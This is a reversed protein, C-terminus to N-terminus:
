SCVDVGFRLSLGKVWCFGKSGFGRFGGVGSGM